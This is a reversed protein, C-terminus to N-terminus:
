EISGWINTMITGFGAIYVVDRVFNLMCILLRMSRDMYRQYFEMCAISLLGHVMYATVCGDWSISVCHLHMCVAVVFLIGKGGGGGGGWGGCM